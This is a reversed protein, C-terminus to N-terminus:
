ILGRKRLDRLAAFVHRRILDEAQESLGIFRISVQMEPTEGKFHRMVEGQCSVQDEGLQLDVTVVEGAELRNTTGGSPAQLSNDDEQQPGSVLRIPRTQRPRALACRLGGESVDVTVGTFRDAGRHVQVPLRLAVRVAARRQGRGAPGTRRVRWCPEEAGELSLLEAPLARLENPGKWVLDLREGSDLRVRRQSKDRPVTIILEDDRVEEVWSILVDSRTAAIVDIVAKVEPYDVGPVDGFM